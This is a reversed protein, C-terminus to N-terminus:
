QIMCGGGRNENLQRQMDELQRMIEAKEAASANASDRLRNEYEGVRREYEERAREVDRTAQERLEQMRQELRQKEEGYESALRQSDSHVQNIQDHLKRQEQELEKRTEEDKDRIADKMEQRVKELEAYHREAQEALERNLEKGAATLSIDRKEDVLEQQIRLAMPHNRLMIQLIAQASALTNDHRVLQGGKDLVPKFFIDQSALEAERSEGEELSVRSWMNTMIVVNRLTSDGCLNRFLRFNRTAIGSMRVDSIRHIYIVGALKVGNEYRHVSM